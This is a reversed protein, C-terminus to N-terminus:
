QNANSLLWMALVTFSVMVGLMWHQSRAAARGDGFLAVARDHAVTLAAVHGAVLVGVQVYWISTASIWTYNIVHGATGLLDGGDGLPDSVLSYIRQGEYALLSFYHALVYAVAIPVLSLAFEAAPRFGAKGGSQLAAVRAGAAGGTYLLAVLVVAAALGVTFSMEVVQAKALGLADFVSEVSPLISQWVPGESAGDFSTSAIALLILAVTGSVPPAGALGSLPMRRCLKGDRREFPAIKALLGFYVGFTEGNDIWRDVGYRAMGALQIVTYVLTALALAAPEDGRASILEFWAFALLGATAPWRGLREPYDVPRPLRDGVASHLAAGLLRGTARWPNFAKFVDGLLLTLPVMGVWFTVYVFNPAFNESGTPTGAYGAYVILAFLAIGVAGCVIEVARSGTFASFADSMPRRRATEYVPEHWLAALAVFSVILVVAAGWAFLWSPIPLDARGVLGHGFAAAPMLFLAAAPAIVVVARSKM